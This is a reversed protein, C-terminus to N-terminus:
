EMAKSVYEEKTRGITRSITSEHTLLFRKYCEVHYIGEAALLDHPPFIAGNMMTFKTKKIKLM